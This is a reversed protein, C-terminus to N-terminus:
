SSEQEALEAQQAPVIATDFYWASLRELTLFFGLGLVAVLGSLLVLNKRKRAPSMSCQDQKRKYLAIGGVAILVAVGRLIWAGVGNTGEYFFDAFSIAWVGGALGMAFLVAPAVCCVIGTLGATAVLKLAWRWVSPNAQTQEM